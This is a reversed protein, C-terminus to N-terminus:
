ETARREVVATPSHPLTMSWVLAVVWGVVTWGLFVDVLLVLVKRPHNRAYAIITPLLWLSVLVAFVFIFAIGLAVEM